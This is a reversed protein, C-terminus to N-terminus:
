VDAQSLRYGASHEDALCYFHLRFIYKKSKLKWQVSFLWTHLVIQNNESSNARMGLILFKQRTFIFLVAPFGTFIASGLICTLGKVLYRRCYFYGNRSMFFYQSLKVLHVRTSANLNQMLVAKSYLLNLCSHIGTPHTGDVATATPPHRGLLTDAQPTDAPLPPHRDALPPLLTDAWLPHRGLPTYVERRQCVSVHLFM